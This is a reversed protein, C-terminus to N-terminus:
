INQDKAKFVLSEFDVDEFKILMALVQAVRTPSLYNGSQTSFFTNVTGLMPCLVRIGFEKLEKNLAFSLGEIAYKSTAYMVKNPKVNTNHSIKSGINIITGTKQKKMQPIVAMCMNLTGKINTDILANLEPQTTEDLPKEMNIGANNILVDIKDFKAITTKVANQVDSPKSIDGEILLVNTFNTLPFATQMETLNKSMLALKCGETYLYDATAKGIGKGAGTILVVKGEIGTLPMAATVKDALMLNLTKKINKILSM